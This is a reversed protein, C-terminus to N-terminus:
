PKAPAVGGRPASWQRRLEECHDKGAAAPPLRVATVSLTGPLHRPVGLAEDVHGAGAILVVTRGPMAAQGVTEAMARDRAIQVRTMPAIQAPPLLECHGVRIADQQARFAPGPLAGDLQLDAMAASMRARPLNAGLVPVGARVAAMVADRYRHWPWAQENWRLAARVASEDADAPLATTGTGQEAMEIALGALQRRAILSEVWERQLRAHDAADHQEGLLVAGPAPRLDPAPGQACAALLTLLLIAPLRHM